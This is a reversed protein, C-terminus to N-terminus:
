ARLWFARAFMDRDEKKEFAWTRRGRPVPRSICHGYNDGFAGRLIDPGEVRYPYDGKQDDLFRWDRADEAETRERSIV